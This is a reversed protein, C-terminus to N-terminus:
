PYIEKFNFPIKTKIWKYTQLEQWITDPNFAKDKMLFASSDFSYGNVIINQKIYQELRFLKDPPIAKSAPTNHFYFYVEIIKSTNTNVALAVYMSNDFSDWWQKKEKKSEDNFEQSLAQIESLAISKFFTVAEKNYIKNTIRQLTQNLQPPENDITVNLENQIIFGFATNKASDDYYLHKVNYVYGDGSIRTRGTYYDPPNPQASIIGASAFLMMFTLLILTKM